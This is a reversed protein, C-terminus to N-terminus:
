LGTPGPATDLRGARPWAARGRLYELSRRRARPRHRRLMAAFEPNSERVRPRQGPVDASLNLEVKQGSSLRNGVWRLGLGCVGPEVVDGPITISVDQRAQAALSLAQSQSVAASTALETASFRRRTELTHLGLAANDVITVDLHR